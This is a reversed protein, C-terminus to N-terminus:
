ERPEHLLMQPQVADLDAFVLRDLAPAAALLDGFPNHLRIDRGALVVRRAADSLPLEDHLAEPSVLRVQSTVNLDDVQPTRFV